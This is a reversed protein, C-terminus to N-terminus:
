SSAGPQARVARNRNLPELPSEPDLLATRVFHLHSLIRQLRHREDRSPAVADLTQRTADIAANVADLTTDFREANPKTFLASLATRLAEIARRWPTAPAYRPDPPLTALEARLDLAANGTELVAFMWRLADRQVDPQDASLTHAQYMLDRAGSEFRTRLGALRAHCAAVVQHRLDAFLRKKLWPATPPFLVAFAIASALMSLVLALADNMFSTPDYHTMNDPGALFCFFILYGMGYGALKPKLTMYVGIALLPTLAVCLLPFGDIHPYIGFTLLFGTCVALATGIGMQASMATPRPTSSALACTAAATLTMTVGSPWATEIWFWGLVLIVTATRIAAIVMATANTRPEYREIWREREHTATSLSAYTAAYEHLDTIFRYLLEAATDFDLLPFDPQTELTARTARIRRPLADRWALLQEAALAADDSSRVPEGNRTLLPAIERFYPEIADIAAQAGAARLRNMLQHLAHFRSSVSMFESNLRALRGSRMRTDPDEFVAMSRAAEFGVVDAVFRTHITEIHARDLKGSLAAAVYDVFSGFRKRVTTRIQEGTTQPFVLASVVGASVIGVMIEAVRTMASMFAGDPHQSAPLGILATTYGALLFGYSRFNRNRAAGATCLAVWLAVALLFLQPQQPFLGVFALTAILGFITGAVRYFSKALVAGSQPQMVIFVTTMATKPAPLDLRMSVGTAIFAALLAKFLYLWAAGDGRAWDAFAAHWAALPGGAHTSAPSSASM